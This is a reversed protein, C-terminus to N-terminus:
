NEPPLNLDEFFIPYRQKFELLLPEMLAIIDPHPKGTAAISTRLSFIHRLSRLNASMVIETKLDQPLVGRAFQPVVGKSILENYALESQEMARYWKFAPYHESEGDINFDYDNNKFAVWQHHVLELEEDSIWSPKIFEIDKGGYSCYRTSEVSYAVGIRHRTLEALVGRSTILRFTVQAHELVSTHQRKIIKRIFAEKVETTDCASESQYCTRAALEVIRLVEEYPLVHLIEASNKIVKM